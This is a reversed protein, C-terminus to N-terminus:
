RRPQPRTTPLSTLDCAPCKTPMRRYTEQIGGPPLYNVDPPDIFPVKSLDFYAGYFDYNFALNNCDTLEAWGRIADLEYSDQPPQLDPSTTFIGIGYGVYKRPGVSRLQSSISTGATYGFAALSYASEGRMAFTGNGNATITIIYKYDGGGYWTGLPSCAPTQALSPMALLACVMILLTTRIM